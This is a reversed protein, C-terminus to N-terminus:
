QRLPSVPRAYRLALLLISGLLPSPVKPTSLRFQVHSRVATRRNCLPDHVSIPRLRTTAQRRSGYSHLTAPSPSRQGSPLRNRFERVSARDRTLRTNWGIPSM